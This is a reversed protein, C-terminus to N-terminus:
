KLRESRRHGDWNEGWQSQSCLLHYVFVTPMLRRKAEPWLRAFVTDDHAADGLSYPYPKQRSCHFIQTFGLPTYGELQGVLRGGIPGVLKRDHTPDVLFKLRHQPHERQLTHLAEINERGVVDVRDVGYLCDRELHTHNFLTRRFNKPLAIDADLHMRWGHYQFFNFGANIAAGKNFNRGNKKFLDTPVVIAGHKSAVQQTRWDEHSTVVIMTDVHAMNHGLTEDLMDDFGVSTVVAELRLSEKDQIDQVANREAAEKGFGGTAQNCYNEIPRSVEVEEWFLV